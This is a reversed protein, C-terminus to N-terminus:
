RPKRRLGLLLSIARELLVLDLQIAMDFDAKAREPEKKWLWVTARHLYAEAFKPELQIAKDCDALARDVQQKGILIRSRDVYCRSHNPALRIAEDFDALARDNESRRVWLRGRRWHADASRPTQAIARNFYDIAQDFPVVHDVGLWGSKKGDQTAVLLRDGDVRSVKVTLYDDMSVESADDQLSIDSSKPVVFSGVALGTGSQVQTALKSDASQGLALLSASLLLYTSLSGTLLLQATIFRAFRKV